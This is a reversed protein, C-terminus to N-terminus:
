DNWGLIRFVEDQVSEIQEETLHPNFVEYKNKDRTSYVVLFEEGHLTKVDEFKLRKRRMLLLTVVYRFHLKDPETQGELRHFCDLLMEDDIQPRHPANSSPVHGKWFSFAGQPPGQWAEESYDQRVLKHNEELLVTFYKEGPKLEKGTIVCRRASPQIQYDM